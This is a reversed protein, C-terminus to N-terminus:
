HVKVTNKVTLTKNPIPGNPLVRSGNPVPGNPLVGGSTPISNALGPHAKAWASAGPSLSTSRHTLEGAAGAAATVIDNWPNLGGGGTLFGGVKKGLSTNKLSEAALFAAITGGIALGVAPVLAVSVELGFKTAIGALAAGLKMTMAGALIGAALDGSVKSVLPHAEFYNIVSLGFAAVKGAGPLLFDGAKIMLQNVTAMLKHFQPGLQKIANQFGSQLSGAGSGSLNKQATNLENLNKVLVSATVGGGTGFVLNILQQLPQHSAAARDKISQLLGSINGQRLMGQLNAASLGVNKLALAYSSMSTYTGKTTAHITTLPGELRGLGTAFGAISRTPLGVQAFIQGLSIVTKLHLSYQSLASGVRGSLMSTEAQLGGVFNKSGAVLIGMTTAVNQGSTIHLKEAAVVAATTNAVSSNTIVAAKSAANLLNMAANGRIGAQEISLAATALDSTSVGTQASTTLMSNGLAKIQADSLGAQNQIKDLAEQYKYAQDVAYGGIAAGLGLVATSAKNAVSTFKSGAKDSAAGLEGMKAQAETMKASYEKTDALLTAIVPPLSAM